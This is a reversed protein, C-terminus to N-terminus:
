SLKAAITASALAWTRTGSTSAVVVVEDVDFDTNVFVNDAAVATLGDNVLSNQAKQQPLKDAISSTPASLRQALYRQRM